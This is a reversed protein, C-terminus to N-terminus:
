RTDRMEAPNWFARMSVVKGDDDFRMVDIVDVYSKRDGFDIEALMPMACENGAVRIPGTLEARLPPTAQTYFTRVAETGVFAPRGVPDEVTPDPGYLGMIGEVDSDCLYKIYRQMADRIADPDPM